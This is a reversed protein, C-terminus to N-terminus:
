QYLERMCPFDERDTIFRVGVSMYSHTIIQQNMVSPCRFWCLTLLFFEMAQTWSCVIGVSGLSRWKDAFNTGFKASLPQWTTLM